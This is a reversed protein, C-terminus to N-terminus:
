GSGYLTYCCRCNLSCCPLSYYGQNAQAIDAQNSIEQELAHQAQVLALLPHSPKASITSMLVSAVVFFAIITTKNM